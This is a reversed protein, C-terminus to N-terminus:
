VNRLQGHEKKRCKSQREGHRMLEKEPLPLAVQICQIEFRGGIDTQGDSRIERPEIREDEERAQSCGAEHGYDPM